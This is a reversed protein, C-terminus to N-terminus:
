APQREGLPANQEIVVVSPTIIVRAGAAHGNWDRSLRAFYTHDPNFTTADPDNALRMPKPMVPEETSETWPLEDEPLDFWNYRNWTSM